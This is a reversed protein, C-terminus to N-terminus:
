SEFLRLNRDVYGMILDRLPNDDGLRDRVPDLGATLNVFAAVDSKGPAKLFGMAWDGCWREATEMSILTRVDYHRGDNGIRDYLAQVTERDGYILLGTIDSAANPDRAVV